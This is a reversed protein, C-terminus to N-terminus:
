IGPFLDGPSAKTDKGPKPFAGLVIHRHSMSATTVLVKPFLSSSKPIVMVPVAREQAFLVELTEPAYRWARGEAREKRTMKILPKASAVSLM